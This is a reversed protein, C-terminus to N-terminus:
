WALGPRCPPSRPATPSPPCAGRGAGAGPQWPFVRRSGLRGSGLRPTHPRRPLACPQVWREGPPPPLKCLGAWGVARAHAREQAGPPQAAVLGPPALSICIVASPLAESFAPGATLSRFPAKVPLGPGLCSGLPLVWVGLLRPLIQSDGPHRIGCAGYCLLGCAGYVQGM